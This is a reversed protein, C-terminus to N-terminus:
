ATYSWLHVGSIKMYVLLVRKNEMLAADVDFTHRCLSPCSHVIGVNGANTSLKGEGAWHFSSLPIQCVSQICNQVKVGLAPLKIKLLVVIIFSAFVTIPFLSITALM